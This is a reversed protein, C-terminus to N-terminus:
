NENYSVGFTKIKIQKKKMLKRKSDPVILEPYDIALKGIFIADADGHNEIVDSFEPFEIKGKKKSECKLSISGSIRPLFKSQWVKSDITMYDINLLELAIMIAEQAHHSSISANFRAQDTMPREIIAVVSESEKPQDNMWEMLKEVDIRSMHSIKSTVTPKVWKKSFSERFDMLKGNRFSALSGTIGNDIGIVIM